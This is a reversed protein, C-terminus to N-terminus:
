FESRLLLLLEGSSNAPRQMQDMTICGAVRTIAFVIGMQHGTKQEAETTTRAGSQHNEHSIRKRVRIHNFLISVGKNNEDKTREEDWHCHYIQFFTANSESKNKGVPKKM